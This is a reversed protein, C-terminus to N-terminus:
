LLTSEEVENFKRQQLADAFIDAFVTLSPIDIFQWFLLLLIWGLKHLVAFVEVLFILLSFFSEPLKKVIM